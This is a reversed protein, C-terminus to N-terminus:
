RACFPTGDNTADFDKELTKKPDLVESIDAVEVPKGSKWRDPFIDRKFASLVDLHALEEPTARGAVSNESIRGIEGNILSAADALWGESMFPEFRLTKVSEGGLEKRYVIDNLRDLLARAPTGPEYPLMHTGDVAPVANVGKDLTNYHRALNALGSKM